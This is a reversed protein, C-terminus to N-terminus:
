SIGGGEDPGGYPDPVEDETTEGDFTRIRHCAVQVHRRDAMSWARLEFGLDSQQVTRCELEPLSTDRHNVRRAVGVVMETEADAVDEEGSIM